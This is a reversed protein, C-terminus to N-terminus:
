AAEGETIPILARVTKGVVTDVDDKRVDWSLTGQYHRVWWLGPPSGEPEATTAAEFDAFEPLPDDVEILVADTKPELTLRLEIWGQGSGFPKAHRFANDVLKDAVRSAADINGPWRAVTLRTRVRLRANPGAAETATLKTAWKYRPEAEDEQQLPLLIVPARVPHEDTELDVASSLTPSLSPDAPAGAGGLPPKRQTPPYM